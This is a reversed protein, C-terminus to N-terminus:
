GKAATDRDDGAEATQRDPPRAPSLALHWAMATGADRAMAAGPALGDMGAVTDADTVADM